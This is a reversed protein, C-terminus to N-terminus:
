RKKMRDIIALLCVLMLTFVAPLVVASALFLNEMRRSSLSFVPLLLAILLFSQLLFVDKRKSFFRRPFDIKRLVWGYFIGTLLFLMIYLLNDFIQSLTSLKM